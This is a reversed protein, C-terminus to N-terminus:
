KKAARRNMTYSFEFHGVLPEGKKDAIFLVNEDGVLLALEPQNSAAELTIQPWKGAEGKELSWKGTRPESRFLTGEIKYSVPTKTKEDQYLTIRWKAKVCSEDWPMKFQEAIRNYPTRGEFVGYVNAGTSLPAIKYPPADPKVMALHWDGPKEAVDTRNLSYSYGGDGVLLDGKPSLLHLVNKSIEVFTVGNDLEITRPHPAKSQKGLKWKGEKTIAERKQAKKPKQLSYKGHECVLKYRTPAQKEDEFLDLTWACEVDDIKPLSLLASVELGRPTSGIFQGFLKEPGANPAGRSVAPALVSFATMLLLAIRVRSMLPEQSPAPLPAYMELNQGPTLKAGFIPLFLLFFLGRAIEQARM